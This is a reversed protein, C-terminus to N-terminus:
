PSPNMDTPYYRSDDTIGIHPTTIINRRSGKLLEMYAAKASTVGPTRSISEGGGLSLSQAEWDPFKKIGLHWILYAIAIPKDEDPMRLNYRALDRELDRKAQSFFLTFNGQTRSAANYLLRAKTNQTNTAQESTQVSLPTFAEVAAIVEHEGPMM